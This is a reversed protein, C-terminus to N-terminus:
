RAGAENGEVFGQVGHVGLIGGFEDLL